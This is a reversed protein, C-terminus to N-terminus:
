KIILEIAGKGWNQLIGYKRNSMDDNSIDFEIIDDIIDYYEYGPDVLEISIKYRGIALNLPNSNIKIDNEGKNMNYLGCNYNSCGFAIPFGMSDKILINVSAKYDITSTINMQLNIYFYNLSKDDFLECYNIYMKKNVPEKDRRFVTGNNGSNNNILLYNSIGDIVDGQFYKQGKHLILAKNCLSKIASMNHSVFLITKGEKTTIDNMKGLCKNQFDSDGVALVEDVILIDSDLNAAVAFALRIYMGSSYRKVPTDIYKSVGSFDVIEDFKKDIEKKKMGLISGNLYINERGTLEQHFGTGVELLSTIKGKIRIQGKTPSTIRSIIKLLTSKGAGNKGIIGVADGQEINFSLDQLSYVFDNDIYNDNLVGIKSFPDEKKLIKTKVWREIDRSITGTGIEGIIYKKSLEEVEIVNQNM